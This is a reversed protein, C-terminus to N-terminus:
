MKAEKASAEMRKKLEVQLVVPDFDNPKFMILNLIAICIAVYSFILSIKITAEYHSVPCIKDYLFAVHIVTQPFDQFLFNNYQTLRGLVREKGCTTYYNNICFSDLVCALMMNERVLCLQAAQEIKPLPSTVNKKRSKCCNGIIIVAPMVQSALILLGVPITYKSCGCEYVIMFFAMCFYTDLRMVLGFLLEVFHWINLSLVKRDNIKWQLYIAISMEM